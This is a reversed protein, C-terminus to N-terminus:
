AQRYGELLREWDSDAYYVAMGQRRVKELSRKLRALVTEEWLGRNRFRARDFDIVHIGGTTLLINHANLDAHQLGRRHLRAIVGGIGRWDAAALSRSAVSQALTEAGPIEAILLDARYVLGRRQYCAAVPRPVPFGEAFLTALVQWERFSRTRRPGRWLFADTLFRAIFGGRLYHRLVWRRDGDHIFFVQGRGGTLAAASGQRAWYDSSFWEPGPKVSLSADYLIGGRPLALEQMDIPIAPAASTFSSEM